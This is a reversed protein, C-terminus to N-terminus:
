ETWVLVRAGHRDEFDLILGPGHREIDDATLSLQDIQLSDGIKFGTLSRGMNLRLLWAPLDLRAVHRNRPNWVFVHLVKLAGAPAPGSPRNIRISGPDDRDIVILPKRGTLQARLQAYEQEASASEVTRINLNHFIAYLVAGLFLAGVLVVVGCISLVIWLTKKSSM